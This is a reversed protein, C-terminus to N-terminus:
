KSVGSTFLSVAESVRAKLKQRLPLHLGKNEVKSWNVQKKANRIQSFRTAEVVQFLELIGGFRSKDFGRNVFVVPTGFALSPLAMHIRSTIVLSASALVKLQAEAMAFKQADTYGKDPLYNKIRTSHKRISAPLLCRIYFAKLLKGWLYKPLRIARTPLSGSLSYDLDAFLDGIVIPREDTEPQFNEKELTLTLCGSFYAEVGHGLLLDRTYYDRCGIPQHSKLYAISEASLMTEAVSQNIHFSVFLPSIADSPPWNQPQQMFWGNMILFSQGGQYRNLGERSITADVQPLFQRAALSQIYDGINFHGYRPEYTLLGFQKNKMM